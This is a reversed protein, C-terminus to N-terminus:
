SEVGSRQRAQERWYLTEGLTLADMASLPWHFIVAIDGQADEM